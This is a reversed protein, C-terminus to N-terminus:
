PEDLAGLPEAESQPFDALQQGDAVLAETGALM